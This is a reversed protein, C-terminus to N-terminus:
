SIAKQRLLHDALVMSVMAECVPIIRPIVSVDHRGTVSLTTSKGHIDISQQTKEISAIPKCAIRMVIDEGNTIGALIGGANNTAFGEPTIPDNCESGPMKAARFGAGIEVGKVTGISMLAKALDADIKDFVPEGLSPPCGKVIIEVIGGLSDGRERAEELRKEMKEAAKMDPCFLRNRWINNMSLNEVAVGGLEVTYATIEMGESAIIKKAIAGAAVRAATERGSARGGGRYDRIGYKKFYTFDGHGPRFLDKIQNYDGSRVDRNTIVISIPTGTTKGEFTGSLIEAIDEEKRPSSSTHQGPRRRDLERQIDSENLPINPPCGDVVVGTAKGHSEGWTTVKFVIGTTNGSM